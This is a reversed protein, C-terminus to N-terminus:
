PGIREVAVPVCVSISVLPWLAGPLPICLLPSATPLRRIRATRLVLPLVIAHRRPAM